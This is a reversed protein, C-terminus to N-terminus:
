GGNKKDSKAKEQRRTGVLAVLALLTKKYMTKAAESTLSVLDSKDFLDAPLELGLSAIGAFEDEAKATVADLFTKLECEKSKASIQAELVEADFSKQYASTKMYLMEKAARFTTSAPILITMTIDRGIAAEHQPSEYPLTFRRVSEPYHGEELKTKDANTASLRAQLKEKQEFSKFLNGVASKVQKVLHDPLLGDSKFVAVLSDAQQQVLNGSSAPPLAEMRRPSRSADGRNVASSQLGGEQPRDSAQQSSLLADAVNGM